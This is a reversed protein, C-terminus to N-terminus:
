FFIKLTYLPSSFSFIDFYRSATNTADEYANQFGEILNQKRYHTNIM